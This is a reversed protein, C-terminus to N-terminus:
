VSRRRTNEHVQIHFHLGGGKTKHIIAVDMDPREYDYEWRRNIEHRIEYALQDPYCWSRLDVARMRSHVDGMHLPERWAETIVIGHEKAVDAIIQILLPSYQREMLAVLISPHKIKIEGPSIM